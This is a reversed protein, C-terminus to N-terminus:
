MRIRKFQDLTLVAFIIFVFNSIFIAAILLSVIISKKIWYCNDKDYPSFIIYVLLTYSILYQYIYDPIFEYTFPIIMTSFLTILFCSDPSDFHHGGSLYRILGVVLLSVILETRQIDLIILIGIILFVYIYILYYAIKREFFDKDVIEDKEDIDKLLWNAIKKASGSVILKKMVENRM